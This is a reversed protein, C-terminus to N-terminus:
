QANQTHLTRHAAPRNDGPRGHWRGFDSATRAKLKATSLEHVRGLRVETPRGTAFAQGQTLHQPLLATSPTSDLVIARLRPASPTESELTPCIDKQAREICPPLGTRVTDSLITVLM